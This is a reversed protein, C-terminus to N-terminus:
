IYLFWYCKLPFPLDTETLSILLQISVHHLLCLISSDTSMSHFPLNMLLASPFTFVKNFLVNLIEDYTYVEAFYGM